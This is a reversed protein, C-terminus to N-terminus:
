KAEKDKKIVLRLGEVAAKVMTTTDFVKPNDLGAAEREQNAAVHMIAGTRCGLTAGVIFLAASEMESALCGAQKYAEWKPLLEYSVPMRQPAHQGYYSDKSQGVGTWTTLGLGESAAKLCTTVDFDPVAPYEIPMYEKTTGEARISGTIVVVDGGKLKTQMGGCTGIRIFTDVGIQHLEEIAISASPGGIGTSTVLVKEGELYGEWTVYERKQGVFKPNELFGAIIKCRDPDGPIIAYKAGDSLSLDIHHMKESM